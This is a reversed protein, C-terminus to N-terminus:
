TDTDLTRAHVLAHALAAIADRGERHLHQRTDGMMDMAQHVGSLRRQPPALIVGGFTDRIYYEFFGVLRITQMAEKTIHGASLYNEVIFIDFVNPTKGELWRIVDLPDETQGFGYSESEPTYYAYGITLGPDIAFIRM